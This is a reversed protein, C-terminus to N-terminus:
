LKIEQMIKLLETMKEGIPALYGIPTPSTNIKKVVFEISKKSANIIAGAESHAKTNAAEDEAAKAQAATKAKDTAKSEALAKAKDAASIQADESQKATDKAQTIAANAQAVAKAEASAATCISKSNEPKRAEKVIKFSNQYPADCKDVLLVEDKKKKCLENVNDQSIKPANYKHNDDDYSFTIQDKKIRSINSFFQTTLRIIEQKSVPVESSLYTGSDLNFIFTTDGTKKIVGASVV